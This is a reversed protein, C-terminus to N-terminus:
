KYMKQALKVAALMSGPDVASTGAMDLATGHDVSTRIFPLGLTVNVARGFGVYKVLPLAQDHYMAVVVDAQQLYHPTFITDASLPGTVAYQQQRLENLTPIMVEIEERGLYGDEGAHPNLGCVLMRPSTLRFWKKLESNLISLVTHLHLKTIAQPVQTLPLHTTALAVKFENVVFLMVTQSVGCYNAFFETHGLFPIGAHNLVGKHVPGTVIANAQKKLCLAAAKELTQIIYISNDPNLKGLQVEAHLALPLIKLKGPQHPKAAQELDCELLQLPLDIQKAREELLRPDAIVVLEIPWAQQAAQITIDPGIGAPEGPTILIRPITM